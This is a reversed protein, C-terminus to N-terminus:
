PRALESSKAQQERAVALARELYAKTKPADPGTSLLAIEGAACYVEAEWSREKTAEVATM